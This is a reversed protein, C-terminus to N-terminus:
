SPPLKTRPQVKGPLKKSFICKAVKFIFSKRLKHYCELKPCLTLYSVLLTAVQLSSSMAMLMIFSAHYVLCAQYNKNTM